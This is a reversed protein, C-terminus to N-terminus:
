CTKGVDPLSSHVKERAKKLEAPNGIWVTWAPADSFLVARAGLVAGEGITVGPGVFCEAGVWARDGIQIPKAFLQFSPDNYDHSAACLHSGQSVVAEEGVSVLAPNYCTVGRGLTSRRKMELNWPAWVIVTPYIAAGRAVRAGFLRLLAARWWHMPVPSPRFFLMSVIQWTLRSLRNSLTYSAGEYAKKGTRIGGESSFTRRTV